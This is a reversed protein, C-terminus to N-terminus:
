HPQCRRGFSDDVVVAEREGGQFGDVSRIELKPLDPLLLSRLLEVQGNYPTIVAIDEARLGLSILSHVHSLVIQAEGHNSKSGAENATEHMDCGTTDVLMLTVKELPCEDCETKDCRTKAKEAVLPLTLLKRDKVSEHSILKGNYMAKSAWNSIDKHMRYQIELMKSRCRDNSKDYAFMLREFLTIGLERQVERVTCKITPPLQKHDGALM